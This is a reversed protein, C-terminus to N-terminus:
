QTSETYNVSCSSHKLAEKFDKREETGEAGEPDLTHEQSSHIAIM